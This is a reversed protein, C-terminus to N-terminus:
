TCPPSRITCSFCAALRSKGDGGPGTLTVVPGNRRTETLKFLEANRGVFTTLEAPIRWTVGFARALSM